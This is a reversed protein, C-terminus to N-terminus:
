EEEIAKIELRVKAIVEPYIKISFVHKGCNKIHGELVIKKKDIDLKLDLNLQKALADATVSGFLKGEKGAKELLVMSYEKEIKEKLTIADKKANEKKRLIQDHKQQWAQLAGPTMPEALSKRFLFNRAFGEAVEVVDGKKGIDQVDQVLLVNINKM